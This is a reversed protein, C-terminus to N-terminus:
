MHVVAQRSAVPRWRSANVAPYTYRTSIGEAVNVRSGNGSPCGYAAAQHARSGPSSSRIGPVASSFADEDSQYPPLRSGARWSLVSSSTRRETISLDLAIAARASDAIPDGAYPPNLKDAPALPRPSAPRQRWPRVGPM